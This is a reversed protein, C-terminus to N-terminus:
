YVSDNQAEQERRLSNQRYIKNFQSATCVTISPARMVAMEQEPINHLCISFDPIKKDMRRLQDINFFQTANAYDLRLALRFGNQIRRFAAVAGELWVDKRDEPMTIIADMRYPQAPDVLSLAAHFKSVPATEFSVRIGISSGIGNTTLRM